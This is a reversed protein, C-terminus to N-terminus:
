SSTGYRELQGEDLRSSDIKVYAVGEEAVVTAELVGPIRALLAMPHSDDGPIALNQKSTRLRLFRDHLPEERDILM